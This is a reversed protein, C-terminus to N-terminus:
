RTRKSGPTRPMAGGSAASEEKSSQQAAIKMWAALASLQEASPRDPMDGDLAQADWWIPPAPTATIGVSVYRPAMIDYPTCWRAVHSSAENLALQLRPSTHGPHHMVPLDRPLAQLEAELMGNFRAFANPVTVSYLPRGADAEAVWWQYLDWKSASVKVAATPLVPLPFARQSSESPLLLTTSGCCRCRYRSYWRIVSVRSSHLSGSVRM